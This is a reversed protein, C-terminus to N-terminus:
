RVFIYPGCPIDRPVYSFFFSLPPSGHHLQLDSQSIQQNRVTTTPLFTTLAPFHLETGILALLPFTQMKDVDLM